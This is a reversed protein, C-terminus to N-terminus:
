EVGRTRRAGEDRTRPTARAFTSGSTGGGEIWGDTVM